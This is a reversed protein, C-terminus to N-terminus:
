WLLTSIAAFFATSIGDIATVDRMLSYMLALPRRLSPSRSVATVLMIAALSSLATCRQLSLPLCVTRGASRYGRGQARTGWSTGAGIPKAM